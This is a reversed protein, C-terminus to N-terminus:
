SITVVDDSGLLAAVSAPMVGVEGVEPSGALHLFDLCTGCVKVAVGQDALLALDDISESGACALRVGDNMMMVAAPLEEARALSYLFNKMLLRGLEANHGGISDSLILVRKPM